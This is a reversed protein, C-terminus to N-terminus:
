ASTEVRPQTRGVASVAIGTFALTLSALRVIEGVGGLVGRLPLLVVFTLLALPVWVPTTRAVLLGAAVLLSGLYFGGAWTWLLIALGDDAIVDTMAQLRIAEHRALAQVFVLLMALGSTGVAGVALVAVGLVGLRQGREAFLSLIAPLGATLTVSACFWLVAMALWRGSHDSAVRVAATVGEGSDAPNLAAGFVLCMVGVVLASASFVVLDPRVTEGYPRGSRSGLGPRLSWGFTM